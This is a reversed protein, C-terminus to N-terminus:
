FHKGPILPKNLLKLEKEFHKGFIGRYRIQTDPPLHSVVDHLIDSSIKYSSKTTSLKIERGIIVSIHSPDEVIFIRNFMLYFTVEKTIKNIGLKYCSYRHYFSVFIIILICIPLSIYISYKLKGIDGYLFLSLVIFSYLISFTYWPHNIIFECQKNKIGFYVNNKSTDMEIM